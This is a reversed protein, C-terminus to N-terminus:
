HFALFEVEKKSKGLVRKGEKRSKIRKHRFGQENLLIQLAPM